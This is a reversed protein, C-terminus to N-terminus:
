VADDDDDDHTHTQFPSWVIMMLSFLSIFSRVSMMQRASFQVSLVNPSVTCDCWSGHRKKLANWRACVSIHTWHRHTRSQACEVLEIFHNLRESISNTCPISDFSRPFHNMNSIELYQCRFGTTGKAPPFIHPNSWRDWPRLYVFVLDNRTLIILQFIIYIIPLVLVHGRSVLADRCTNIIFVTFTVKVAFCLSVTQTRQTTWSQIHADCVDELSVLVDYIVFFLVFIVVFLILLLNRTKQWVGVIITWCWFGNLVM